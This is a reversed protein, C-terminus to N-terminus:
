CPAHVLSVTKRPFLNWRLLEQSTHINASHGQSPNMKGQKVSKRIIFQM